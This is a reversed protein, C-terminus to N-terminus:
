ETKLHSKPAPNGHPCPTKPPSIKRLLNGKDSLFVEQGNETKYGGRTPCLGVPHPKRRKRKTENTLRWNTLVLEAKTETKRGQQAPACTCHQRATQKGDQAEWKIDHKENHKRKQKQTSRQTTWKTPLTTEDRDNKHPKSHNNIILHSHTTTKKLQTQDNTQAFFNSKIAQQM